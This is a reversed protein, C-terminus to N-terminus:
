SLSRERLVSESDRAWAGVCSSLPLLALCALSPLHQSYIAIGQIALFNDLLLGWVLYGFSSPAYVVFAAVAIGIGFITPYGWRAM